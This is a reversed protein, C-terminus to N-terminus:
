APYELDELMPAPAPETPLKGGQRAAELAAVGTGAPSASRRRREQLSFPWEMRRTFLRKELLNVHIRNRYARGHMAWPICL